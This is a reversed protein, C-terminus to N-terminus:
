HKITKIIDNLEKTLEDVNKYGYLTSIKKGKSDFIIIAPLDIINYKKIIAEHKDTNVIVPYYNSIILKTIAANQMTTNKMKQCWQCTDSAAFILVPHHNKKAKKFIEASYDHWKISTSKSKAAAAASTLQGSKNMDSSFAPLTTFILCGSLLTGTMLTIIKVHLNRKILRILNKTFSTTEYKSDM